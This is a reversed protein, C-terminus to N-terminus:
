SSSQEPEVVGLVGGEEVLLYDRHDLKFEIGEWKELVVRDGPAVIADLRREGGIADPLLRGPGVAVVRAWVSKKDQSTEPILIGGHTETQIEREVMVMKQLPRLKRGEFGTFGDSNQITTEEM